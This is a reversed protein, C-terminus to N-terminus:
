PLTITDIQVFAPASPWGSPEYQCTIVSPTDSTAWLTATSPSGPPYLPILSDLIPNALGQNIQPIAFEQLGPTGWNTSIGFQTGDHNYVRTITQLNRGGGRPVPVASTIPEGNVTLFYNVLRHLKKGSVPMTGCGCIYIDGLSAAATNWDSQTGM